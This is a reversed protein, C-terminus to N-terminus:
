NVYAVIEYRGSLEMKHWSLNMGYRSGFLAFICNGDAGCLLGNWETGDEQMAFTGEARLIAFIEDLPIEDFYVNRTLNSLKTNMHRKNTTNM